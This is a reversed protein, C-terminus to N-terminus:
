GALLGTLMSLEYVVLGTYGFITAGLIQVGSFRNLLLFRKHMVLFLVCFSTLFFKVGFFLRVDISLFYDLVPNLEQSGKQILQVTLYADFVSLFCVTLAMYYLWSEHVDVYSHSQKEHDRRSSALRRRKFLSCFAARSNDQRRDKQRVHRVLDEGLLPELMHTETPAVEVCTIDRRQISEQEVSNEFDNLAISATQSM